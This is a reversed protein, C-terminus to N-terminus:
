NNKNNLKILFLALLFYILAGAHSCLFLLYNNVALLVSGVAIYVNAIVLLGVIWITSLINNM